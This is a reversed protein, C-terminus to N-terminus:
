AARVRIAAGPLLRSGEVLHIIPSRIHLQLFESDGAGDGQAARKGGGGHRVGARLQCFAQGGGHDIEIARDDVRGQGGRFEGGQNVGHNGRAQHIGEVVGLVDSDVRGGVVGEGGDGGIDGAGQQGINRGQGLHEGVM